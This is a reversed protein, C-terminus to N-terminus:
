YGRTSALQKHVHALGTIGRAENATCDVCLCVVDGHRTLPQTSIVCGVVCLCSQYM